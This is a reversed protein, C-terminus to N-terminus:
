LGFLEVQRDRVLIRVKQDDVLGGPQDNMRRPTMRAPREDVTQEPTPDCTLRVGLPRADNVPEITIRRPQEDDRPVGLSVSAEL